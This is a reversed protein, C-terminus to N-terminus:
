WLSPIYFHGLTQGGELSDWHQWSVCINRRETLVWCQLRLTYCAVGLDWHILVPKSKAGTQDLVPQYLLGRGCMSGLERRPVWSDGPTKFDEKPNKYWTLLRPFSQNPDNILWSQIHCPASKGMNRQGSNQWMTGGLQSPPKSICNLWSGPFFSSVLKTLM